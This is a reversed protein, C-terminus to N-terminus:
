MAKLAGNNVDVGAASLKIQGSGSKLTMDTKTLKIESGGISITIDDGTMKIEAGQSHILHIEDADDDLVLKHGKTTVLARTRTKSVDDLDDTGWWCGTWIPRSIDGAEFEIWVGDGVEPMLVLGHQPGAFPLAPMAWPSDTDGYVAPVTAKIRLMDDPDSIDAVVGRYKGFHRSRQFEAVRVLLSEYEAAM